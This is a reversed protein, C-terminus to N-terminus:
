LHLGQIRGIWGEHFKHTAMFVQFIVSLFGHCNNSRSYMPTVRSARVTVHRTMVGGGEPTVM